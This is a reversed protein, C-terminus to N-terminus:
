QIMKEYHLILLKRISADDDGSGDGVVVVDASSFFVRRFVQRVSNNSNISVGDSVVSGM